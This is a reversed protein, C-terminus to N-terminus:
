ADSSEGRIAAVLAQWDEPWMPHGEVQSARQVAKEREDARVRAILVCERCPVVPGHPWGSECLPDHLPETVDSGHSTETVHQMSDDTMTDSDGQTKHISDNVNSPNADSISSTTKPEPLSKGRAAAHAWVYPLVLQNEHIHGGYAYLADHVRQAASNREDERAASLHDCICLPELRCVVPTTENEPVLVQYDAEVCIPDHTM